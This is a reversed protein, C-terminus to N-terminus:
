SPIRVPLGNVTVQVPADPGTVINSLIPLLVSRLLNIAIAMQPVNGRIELSVTISVSERLQDSLATTRRSEQVWGGWLGMDFLVQPCLPQALTSV